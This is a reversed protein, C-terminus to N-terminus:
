KLLVARAVKTGLRTKVRIFYVGSAVPAGQDNRGEWSLYNDGSGFRRDRALVRVREGTVSWIEATVAMAAPLTFHVKTSPNFPNPVVGVIRFPKPANESGVATVVELRVPIVTPSNVASSVVTVVCSDPGPGTPMVCVDITTTDGPALSHSTATTDVSFPNSGCGFIGDITMPAVGTNAVHVSVCTTDNGAAQAFVVPSPSATLSAVAQFEYAGMDVTGGFVRPNGDLDDMPLALGTTDGADIAPSGLTLRLDGGLQDVFLPDADINGGGDVGFDSNWAGSGGSGAVLSYSVVAMQGANYIEVGGGGSDGWLVVNTLKPTGGLNFIGGGSVNGAFTANLLEPQSPLNSMGGGNTASNEFFVANTIRPDDAQNHFGGGLMSSNKSFVLGVMNPRGALNVMGGGTSAASNQSFEVNLLTPDGGSNCFGGGNGAAHNLSFVVNMITPSGRDCYMGGGNDYGNEATGNAITFGDLVATSDVGSGTVVHYSNDTSDTPVGIDGSLTTKNAIWDRQERTTETASFGGYLAVSNLLQFTATRDSGTTPKYTGEAVWIEVPGCSQDAFLLANQLDTFADGWSSGDGAGTAQWDVRAVALPAPSYQLEYAGMDVKEAVIRTNGELDFADKGELAADSGADVAPSNCAGLRLNDSGADVFLPDSDINGGGDAGFSGDWNLSGGSGQVLSYSIAPSGSEGNHIEDDGSVASDGWLITNVLTPTSFVNSMGGGVTQALNGSFTVNTLVPSAWNGNVMGGGNYASVNRSFVVNYLVANGQNLMGGGNGAVASNGVFMVNILTTNCGSQCYMGGGYGSTNGSITINKLMPNSGFYDNMIGGGDLAAYNGEVTLNTLTPSGSAIYIGGGSRDSAGDAVGETVKFGDLVATSDAGSGTVVHYSNDTSDSTVGIDGSLITPNAMWDRESITSETGAFGGYIAVGSVLQFTASRDSGTTPHYTGVAVWIEDGAVAASLADQLDVYADGWSTGDGAGTASEDVYVIEPPPVTQFEYAGCDVSGGSVRPNGDLDTTPLALGTTDGADIAPSAPMLRMDGGVENVFLPDADINGGADSGLSANWGGGSGGSGEILSYSIIPSTGSNDIENSGFASDDWLITNKLNPNSGLSNSMGGGFSSATNRSFTVNVLTPNASVENYMGAGNSGANFAVLVNVITPSSSWNYMAGGNSASNGIFTTNEITPNSSYNNLGGGVGSTNNAFVGGDLKTDSGNTNTMGGGESLSSNNTLTVNLFKPSSASNYVAGGSYAAYNDSFIVNSITANGGANYLGGGDNDPFPGDARGLTVSFGDLTATSDTGTATVVHYSNDDTVGETGIDGSLITVHASWDRGNRQTETGDFGGYLEVGNLLQFTAGRDTGTTPKYTGEAVWIEVGPLAVALASQLDVFADAWSSGNDAGTASSDVYIV